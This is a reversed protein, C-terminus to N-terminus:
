VRYRANKKEREFIGKKEEEREEKRGKRREGEGEILEEEREEKEIKEGGMIEVDIPFFLAGFSIYYAVKSCKYM